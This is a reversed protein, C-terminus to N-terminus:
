RGRELDSLIKELYWQDSKGPYKKKLRGKMDRIYEDAREESVRMKRQIQKKIQGHKRKEKQAPSFFVLALIVIIVLVIIWIM